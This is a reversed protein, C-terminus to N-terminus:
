MEVHLNEWGFAWTGSKGVEMRQESPFKAVLNRLINQM